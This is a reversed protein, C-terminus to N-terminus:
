GRTADAAVASLTRGERVATDFLERVAPLASSGAGVASDITASLASRPISTATDHSRSSRLSMWYQQLYSAVEHAADIAAPDFARSRQTHFTLFGSAGLGTFLRFSMVSGVPAAAGLVTRYRIWGPDTALDSILIVTDDGSPELSPGVGHLRQLRDLVVPHADAAAVTALGHDLSVLSLGVTEAGPVLGGALATIESLRQREEGAGVDHDAAYLTEGPELVASSTLRRLMSRAIGAVEVGDHTVAWEYRRDGLPGPDGLDRAVVAISTDGDIVAMTVHDRLPAIRAGRVGPPLDEGVGIVGVLTNTKALDAYRAAADPTFMEPLHVSLLVTGTTRDRSAAAEFARGLSAIEDVQSVRTGARGLIDAPTVQTSRPRDRAMHLVRSRRAAAVADATVALPGPHGLHFGQVMTAGLSRARRLDLESEVGECLIRGDSDGVHDWVAELTRRQEATLHDGLMVRDLKVIDPRVVALMAVSEPNVGVDDLAVLCSMERAWDAVWLVARPDTLLARETLEIVTPVRAVSEAVMRADVAAWPAPSGLVSPELNVFLHLPARIGARSAGIMASRRCAWDLDGLVGSARARAFVEAPGLGPRHPFRALAEYGVVTRTELEVIPQYVSRVRGHVPGILADLSGVMDDAM